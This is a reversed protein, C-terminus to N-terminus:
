PKTLSLTGAKTSAVIAVTQHSPEWKELYFKKYPVDSKSTWGYHMAWGPINLTTKRMQKDLAAGTCGGCRKMSQLVDFYSALDGTGQIGEIDAASTDGVTALAKVIKKLEKSNKGSTPKIYPTSNLVYANGDNASKMTDYNMVSAMGMIPVNVGAGKLQDIIPVIFTPFIDAVVANPKAAVVQAGQPTMETATASETGVSVIQAKMNPAINKMKKVWAKTGLAFDGLVSIKPSHHSTIKKIFRIMPAAYTVESTTGLFLYKAIQKLPAATMSACVTPIKARTVISSLETCTTSISLGFIAAVHDQVLQTANSAAKGSGITGANLSVLKLQKGDIGGSSNFYDIVAKAFKQDSTGYAGAAGTLNDDLGITITGHGHGSAGAEGPLSACGAAIVAAAIGGLLTCRLRANMRNGGKM